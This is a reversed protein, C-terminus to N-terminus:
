RLADRAAALAAAEEVITPGSCYMFRAPFARRTSPLQRLARHQLLRGAQTGETGPMEGVLLLDPPQAVILELPLPMHTLIGYRAAVNDFGVIHMLENTVTHSGATLGGTEYVAATLRPAGPPLRAADIAHEIRGVLAEGEAASGVLAAIRRIQAISDAVSFAVDFLEYRIGVRRLANRTPIASHRSALVLDPRLAVIEEATEYTIPLHAARAAIPSRLPDRSYHSVAAIRQEPVLEVLIADLCPNLSVIRAPPPHQTEDARAHAGVALVLLTFALQPLHPNM